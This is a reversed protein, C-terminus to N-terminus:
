SGTVELVGHAGREAKTMSHNVISFHGAGPAVMEVYGGQAAGLELVQSGGPGVTGQGGRGCASNVEAAPQYGCQLSFAGESWTTDFQAGVVHFSIGEDPGAALVWFRVRDGVKATLPHHDYQNAYGNFVVADPNGDGIRDADAGAQEDDSYWTDSQVMVYEHDVETLGPPDIIVAGYMGNAIHLSMPATSCHYLWMGSKTATFTYTLEEGPAITRMPEDPALAGAHFDISHGMTGHNQLTIVFKDGLHGRLTPGPAQGNFMWRMQKVGPAVEVVEETVDFLLHHETESSAPALSADRAEASMQDGSGMGSMGDMGDMGSMSGSGSSAATGEVTIDLTMGMQKHGAISCWAQQSETIVGADLTGSSGPMLRGTTAGTETVLDHVMGATDTNTVDIILETGAPITIASPTFKMDAADVSVRQTAGSTATNTSGSGTTGVMTSPSAATAVSLAVVLVGIGAMWEFRRSRQALPNETVPEADAPMGRKAMGCQAMTVFLAVFGALFVVSLAVKGATPLPALMALGAGNVAIIRTDALRDMVGNRRQILAASGGMIMPLLYALAGAILQSAFGGLLPWALDPLRNMMTQRDPSTATLVVATALTGILWVMGALISMASFSRIPKVLAARVMAVVTFGLCALYGLLGLAAIWGQGSVGGADVVAISICLLPLARRADAEAGPVMTTHLITPWLTLLTGIVALGLWGLVSSVIHALLFRDIHSGLAPTMLAGFVAAVVFWAGAAVYYRIVTSGLRTSLAARAHLGLTIVHTAVAVITLAAGAIMMPNQAAEMGGILVLIGLNLAALVTIQRARGNDSSRMLAAAFYESWVVVANTAVGLAAAHLSVWDLDPRFRQGILSVVVIVAWVMVVAASFRHWAKRSHAGKGSALERRKKAADATEINM